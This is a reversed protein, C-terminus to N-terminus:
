QLVVSAAQMNKKINIDLSLYLILVETMGQKSWWKKGAAASLAPHVDLVKSYLCESM